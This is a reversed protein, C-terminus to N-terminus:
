QDQDAVALGDLFAAFSFLDRQVLEFVARLGRTLEAVRDPKLDFTYANRIVHRFGLYDRLTGDTDSSLVAPRVPPIPLALQALLDRHWASGSPVNQDVDRAILEFLREAGSYFNHLDLAAAALFYEQNDPQQTARDLASEARDVVHGLPTLEARIREALVRYRAIM